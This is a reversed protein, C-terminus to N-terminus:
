PLWGAVRLVEAAVERLPRSDNRVVHDEPKAREQIAALEPARALHWELDGAAAHRRRLREEILDAPSLLRIVTTQAGPVAERMDLAGDHKELVRAVLLREAGEERFNAWVCALNRLAVAEGFRDSRPWVQSLDDMDIVAHAIGAEILLGSATHAVASKGSGVTGTIM